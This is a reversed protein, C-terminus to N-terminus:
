RHWRRRHGPRHCWLCCCEAGVARRFRGRGGCLGQLGRTKETSLAAISRARKEGGKLLSHSSRTTVTRSPDIGPPDVVIRREPTRAALLPQRDFGKRNVPTLRRAPLRDTQLAIPRLSAGVVLPLPLRPLARSLDGGARLGGAELAAMHARFLREFSPHERKGHDRTPFVTEVARVPIQARVREDESRPSLPDLLTTRRNSFATTRRNSFADSRSRRDAARCSSAASCWSPAARDQAARLSGPRASISRRLASSSRACALSSRSRASRSSRSSATSIRYRSRRPLSLSAVRGSLHGTQCKLGFAVAGKRRPM